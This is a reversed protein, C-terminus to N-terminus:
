TIAEAKQQKSRRKERWELWWPITAMPGLLSLLGSLLLATAPDLFQNSLIHLGLRRMELGSSVIVEHDGPQKASLTWFRSNTGPTLKFKQGDAPDKDFGAARLSVDVECDKSLTNMFFLELVITEGVVPTRKPAVVTQLAHSCGGASSLSEGGDRYRAAIELHTVWLFNGFLAVGLLTALIGSTALLRPNRM